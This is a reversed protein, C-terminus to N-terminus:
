GLLAEIAGPASLDTFAHTAGCARLAEPAFSGTGVGISEAGIAQAAAVDKPTDGIVVVRCEALPKGLREAGREAGRRIVLPREEADCGFGGFAFYRYVDVRELKVRAGERVNGTGLGVAHGARQGAEVANVMGAHLRYVASDAAAVELRLVEVYDALLADIEAATAEVGLAELGLRAILKDTMGDFPFSCADRRGYRREFAVEIAKRGVGGTTILTGDIDFLLVTPRM